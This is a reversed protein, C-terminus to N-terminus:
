GGLIESLTKLSMGLDSRLAYSYGDDTWTALTIIGNDGKITVIFDGITETKVETYVTWDGSIDKDGKAVRYSIQDGDTRCLLEFLDGGIVYVTKDSCKFLFAPVYLKDFGTSVMADEITDYKKMPNPMQTMTGDGEKTFSIVNDKVAAGNGLLKFLDMPVYTVRNAAVPAAGLPSPKSMGIATSSAMYYTDKGMTVSTKVSGNDLRVEDAREASWEVKYGLAEGVARVPVMIVEGEAYAAKGSLDLLQGDIHVAYPQAPGPRTVVDAAMAPVSLTLALTLAAAFIRKRM